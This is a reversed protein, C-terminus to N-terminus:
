QKRIILLKGCRELTFVKQGSLASVIEMLSDCEWPKICHLDEVAYYGGTKVYPWITRLSCSIDSLRHSGDDIAFDVLGIARMVADVATSDGQDALHVDLGPITNKLGLADINIDIGFLRAQPLFERWMTMSAGPFRSDYIGIELLTLDPSMSKLLKEYLEAYRHACHHEDGKDTGCTNAIENLTPM